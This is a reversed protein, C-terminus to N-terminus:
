VHARGIQVFDKVMELALCIRSPANADEPQLRKVYFGNGEGLLTLALLSQLNYFKSRPDLTAEGFVSAFSSDGVGVYTTETPGTETFLRLLPTHQAFTIEPRMFPRRSRDRIGNFVIRPFAHVSM